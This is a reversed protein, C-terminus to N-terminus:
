SKGNQVMQLFLKTKPTASSGGEAGHSRQKTLMEPAKGSIAKTTKVSFKHRNIKKTIMYGM